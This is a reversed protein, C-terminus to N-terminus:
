DGHEQLLANVWIPACVFLDGQCFRSSSLYIQIWQWKSIQRQGFILKTLFNPTKCGFISNVALIKRNRQSPVAMPGCTSWVHLDYCGYVQRKFSIVLRLSSDKACKIKAEWNAQVFLASVTLSLSMLAKEQDVSYAFSMKCLLLCCSSLTHSTKDPDSFLSGSM